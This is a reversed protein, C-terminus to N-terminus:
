INRRIDNLFCLTKREGDFYFMLVMVEVDVEVTLSPNSVDQMGLNYFLDASIGIQQVILTM